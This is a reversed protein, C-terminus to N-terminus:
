ESHATNYFLDRTLTRKIMNGKCAHDRNRPAGDCRDQKERHGMGETVGGRTLSGRQRMQCLDHYYLIRLNSQKAYEYETQVNPEM